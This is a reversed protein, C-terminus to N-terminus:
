ECFQYLSTLLPQRIEDREFLLEHKAGAFSKIIAQNHRNALKYQAANDVVEDREASAIFLPINISLKDVSAIFTFAAQLWGYTVGGLQLLPDQYTQRFNKYRVQSSTLSNLAFEEPSYDNQGLAYSQSFGFFVAANAILKALPKPTNKTHIDFMPASLFLGSFNNEFHALYDFAIAGGMSHGLLIKKGQWHNDVIQQNFLHLDHRYDTFCKVYGKHKNALHRYSRGQGQHDVIFVAFNNTYLEWLLEKYKDLGEIRGSSIVIATHAQEPKAYAYFLQGAPTNLYAKVLTNNYFDNISPQNDILENESSYFM